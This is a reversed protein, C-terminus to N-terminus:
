GGGRDIWWFAFIQIQRQQHQGRQSLVRAQYLMTNLTSTPPAIMIPTTKHNEAHPPHLPTRPSHFPPALRLLLPHPPQNLHTDTPLNSTHTTTRTPASATRPFHLKSTKSRRLAVKRRSRSSPLDPIATSKSSEALQYSLAANADNPRKPKLSGTEELKGRYRESVFRYINAYMCIEDELSSLVALYKTALNIFIGRETSREIM